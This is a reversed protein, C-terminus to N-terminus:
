LGMPCEGAERGWTQGGQAMNVRGGASSKQGARPPASGGTQGALLGCSTGWVSDGGVDGGEPWGQTLVWADLAAPTPNCRPTPPPRDPGRFSPPLHPPLPGLLNRRMGAGGRVEQPGAQPLPHVSLIFGMAEARRPPACGAGCPSAEAPCRSM